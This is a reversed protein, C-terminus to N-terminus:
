LFIMRKNMVCVRVAKGIDNRREEKKHSFETLEVMMKRIFVDFNGEKLWNKWEAEERKNKGGDMRSM